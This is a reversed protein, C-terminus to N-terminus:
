APPGDERTAAAPDSTTTAMEGQRLARLRGGMGPTYMSVLRAVTVVLFIQGILAELVAMTRPFGEVPTLDGYGVTTMTIFSYYVFDTPGHHGPQVFFSTGGLLQVAFDGYAFVIGILVYVCVAGLLTQVTVHDHRMIRSLVAMPSSLVLLACIVFLIGLGRKDGSAAAVFAAIMAIIVAIQVVRLPLGRVASTHFALLATLGIFATASISPWGTEWGVSLIVFDVIVLLLLLGYSDTATAIERLVVRSLVRRESAEESSDQV